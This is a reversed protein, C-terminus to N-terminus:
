LWLLHLTGWGSIFPMPLPSSFSERGVPSGSKGAVRPANRLRPTRRERIGWGTLGRQMAAPPTEATQLWLAQATLCGPVPVPRGRPAEPNEVRLTSVVPPLM